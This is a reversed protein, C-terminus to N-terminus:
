RCPCMLADTYMTSDTYPHHLNFIKHVHVFSGGPKGLVLYRYAEFVGGINM